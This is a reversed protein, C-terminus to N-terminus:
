FYAQAKLNKFTSENNQPRNKRATFAFIPSRRLVAYEGYQEEAYLPEGCAITGLLPVKKTAIPIVNSFVGLPKRRKVSDNYILYDVSVDFIEALRKMSEPDIDYKGMEWYSLTSQSVGIMRALEGQMLGKTQRLEKIRNRM